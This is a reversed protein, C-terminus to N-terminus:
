EKKEHKKSSLRFGKIVWVISWFIIVPVFGFSIYDTLQETTSYRGYPKDVIFVGLNWLVSIVISLRFAGKNGKIVKIILWILFAPVIFLLLIIGIAKPTSMPEKQVPADIFEYEKSHCDSAFGLFVLPMFSCILM